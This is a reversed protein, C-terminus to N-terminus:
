AVKGSKKAAEDAAHTNAHAEDLKRKIEIWEAM